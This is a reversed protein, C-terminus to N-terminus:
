EGHSKATNNLAEIFGNAYQEKDRFHNHLLERFSNRQKETLIEPRRPLSRL